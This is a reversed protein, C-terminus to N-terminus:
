VRRYTYLEPLKGNGDIDGSPSNFLDHVVIGNPQVVVITHRVLVRVYNVGCPLMDTPPIHHPLYGLELSCPVNDGEYGEGDIPHFTEM